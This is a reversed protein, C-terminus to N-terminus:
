AASHHARVHEIGRVMLLAATLVVALAVLGARVVFWLFAVALWVVILFFGGFILWAGAIKWLKQPWTARPANPDRIASFGGLGVLWMVALWPPLAAPSREWTDASRPELATM